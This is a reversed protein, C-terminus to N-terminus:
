TSVTADADHAWVGVGASVSSFGLLLGGLIDRDNAVHTLPRDGALVRGGNHVGYLPRNHFRPSGVVTFSGDAAPEYFPAVAVPGLPSPQARAGAALAALACALASGGAARM